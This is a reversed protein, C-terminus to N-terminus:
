ILGGIDEWFLYTPSRKSVLLLLKGRKKSINFLILVERYKIYFIILYRRTVM